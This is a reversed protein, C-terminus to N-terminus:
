NRVASGKQYGLKYAEYVDKHRGSGAQSDNLSEYDLNMPNNNLGDLVGQEFACGACKHRGSGSQDDPLSELIPAYRHNKNCIMIGGYLKLKIIIVFYTLYILIYM